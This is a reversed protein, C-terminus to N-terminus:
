ILKEIQEKSLETIKVIFDIPLNEMLMKKADELKGHTILQQREYKANEIVDCLMSDVEKFQNKNLLVRIEDSKNYGYAVDMIKIYLNFIRKEENDFEKIDDLCRRIGNYFEIENKPKELMLIVGLLRSSFIKLGEADYGKADLLMYDFDLVYKGYQEPEVFMEKISLPVTWKKSGSFFVLPFVVPFKFDRQEREYVDALNYHYRLIEVINYFCGTPYVVIM